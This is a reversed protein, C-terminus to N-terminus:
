LGFRSRGPDASDSNSLTLRNLRIRCYSVVYTTPNPQHAEHPNGRISLTKRKTEILEQKRTSSCRNQDEVSKVVEYGIHRIPM